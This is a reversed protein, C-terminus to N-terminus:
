NPKDQEAVFYIHALCPKDVDVSECVVNAQKERIPM